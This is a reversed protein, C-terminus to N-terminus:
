QVFTGFLAASSSQILLGFWVQMEESLPFRTDARFKPTLYAWYTTPPDSYSLRALDDWVHQSHSPYVAPFATLYSAPPWLPALRGAATQALVKSKM